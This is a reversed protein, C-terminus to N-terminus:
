SGEGGLASLFVKFFFFFGVFFTHQWSTTGLFAPDWFLFRGCPIALDQPCVFLVM